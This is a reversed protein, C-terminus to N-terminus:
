KTSSGASALIASDVRTPADEWPLENALALAAKLEEFYMRCEPLMALTERVGKPDYAERELLEFVQAKLEAVNM